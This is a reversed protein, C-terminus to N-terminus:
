GSFKTSPSTSSCCLWVFDKLGTQSLRMVGTASHFVFVLDSGSMMFRAVKQPPFFAFVSTAKMRPPLHKLLFEFSEGLILKRSDCPLLGQHRPHWNVIAENGEGDAKHRPMGSRRAVWGEGAPSCHPFRHGPQQGHCRRSAPSVRQPAESPFAPIQNAQRCQPFSNWSLCIFIRDKQLLFHKM